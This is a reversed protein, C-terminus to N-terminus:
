ITFFFILELLFLSLALLSLLFFNLFLFSKLVNLLRTSIVHHLDLSFFKRSQLGLRCSLFRTYLCLCSVIFNNHSVWLHTFAKNIRLSICLFFIPKWVLFAHVVDRYV